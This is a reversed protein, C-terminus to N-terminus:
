IINHIEETVQACFKKHKIWSTLFMKTVDFLARDVYFTLPFFCM